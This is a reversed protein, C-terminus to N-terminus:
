LCGSRVGRLISRPRITNTGTGTLSHLVNKNACMAQKHEGGRGGATVHNLMFKCVFLLGIWEDQSTSQRRGRHAEYSATLVPSYPMVNAFFNGEGEQRARHIVYTNSDCTCKVTAAM